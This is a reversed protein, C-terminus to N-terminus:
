EVDENIAAAKWARRSRLYITRMQNRNADTFMVDDSRLGLSYAAHDKDDADVTTGNVTVSFLCDPIAGTCEGIPSIQLWVERYKSVVVTYTVAAAAMSALLCLTATFLLTKKM